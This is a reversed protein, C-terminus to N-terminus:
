RIIVIKRYASRGNPTEFYAIYVGSAVVQRSSTNSNWSEDGTGDNHQITKILDGRETYIKITCEGPLNFFMIQDQDENVGYQHERASFNYPNPVVRIEELTEAAPRKLYAPLSTRTYFLSSELEGSPNLEGPNNSGDSYSTIYYYYSFGRRATNDNFTHVTDPLSCSFIQEYTTDRKGEARYIRFGKFNAGYGNLPDQWRLQIKDGM